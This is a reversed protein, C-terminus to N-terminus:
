RPTRPSTSRLLLHRGHGQPHLRLSLREYFEEQGDQKRLVIKTHPGRSDGTKCGDAQRDAISRRHIHKESPLPSDTLETDTVTDKHVREELAAADKTARSRM